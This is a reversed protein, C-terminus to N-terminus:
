SKAQPLPITKASRWTNPVATQKTEALVPSGTETSSKLAALLNM